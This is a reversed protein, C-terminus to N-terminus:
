SRRVVLRINYDSTSAPTLIGRAVLIGFMSTSAVAIYGMDVAANCVYQSGSLTKWSAAAFGIHGQVKGVDDDHVNIAGSDTFTSNTPASDFLVLDLAPSDTDKSTVCASLIQGSGGALKAAKQFAMYGNTHTGILTNAGYSGTSVTLVAPELIAMGDPAYYPTAPSKPGLSGLGILGAITLALVSVTSLLRKM